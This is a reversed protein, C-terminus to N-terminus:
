PKMGSSSLSLKELITIEVVSSGNADSSMRDVEGKSPNLNAMTDSSSTIRATYCKLDWALPSSSLSCLMTALANGIMAGEKVLNNLEESALPTKGGAQFLAWIIARFFVDTGEDGDSKRGIAKSQKREM